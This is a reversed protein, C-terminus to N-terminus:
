YSGGNNRFIAQFSVENDADSSLDVLTDFEVAAGYLHLADGAHASPVLSLNLFSGAAAAAGLDAAAITASYRGLAQAITATAAGMETDGKGAFAQVDITVTNANADKECHLYVTAANATQAAAPIILPPFQVEVVSAAAWRLRLAKDTAGNVRELVPDTNGDPVGAETTNQIAGASIIRATTIDLPVHVAPGRRTRIQLTRNAASYDGVVAGLHVGDASRVAAQCSIMEPWQSDLTLTYLGASTRVVSFGYGKTAGAVLGSAGNPRFKGHVMVRDKGIVKMSDAAYRTPM